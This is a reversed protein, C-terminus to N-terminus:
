RLPGLKCHQLGPRCEVRHHRLVVPCRPNAFSIVMSHSSTESVGYSFSKLYNDPGMVHILLESAAQNLAQKAMMLEKAPPPPGQPSELAGNADSIEKTGNAGSPPKPSEVLVPAHKEQLLSKTLVLATRSITEALDLLPTPSVPAM